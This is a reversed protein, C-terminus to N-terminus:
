NAKLKESATTVEAGVPLEKAANPVMFLSVLPFLFRTITVASRIRNTCCGLEVDMDVFIDGAGVTSAVSTNLM